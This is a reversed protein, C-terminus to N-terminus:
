FLSGVWADRQAARYRTREETLFTRVDDYTLVRQRAVPSVPPPPPAVNSAEGSAKPVCLHRRTNSSFVKGCKECTIDKRPRQKWKRKPPDPKKEVRDDVPDPQVPTEKADVPEVADAIEHLPVGQTAERIEQYTPEPLEGSEGM